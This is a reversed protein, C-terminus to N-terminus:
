SKDRIENAVDWLACVVAGLGFVIALTSFGSLASIDAAVFVMLTYFRSHQYFKM